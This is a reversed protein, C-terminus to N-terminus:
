VIGEPIIRLSRPRWNALAKGHLKLSSVKSKFNILNARDPIKLTEKFLWFIYM